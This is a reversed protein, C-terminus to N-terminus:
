SARLQAVKRRPSESIAAAAPRGSIDDLSEGHQSIDLGLDEHADDVRLPIIRDTIWYLFFSVAFTFASVVVLAVLHMRFTQLEGSLLGVKEAFIGTCIM